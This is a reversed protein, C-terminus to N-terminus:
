CNVSPDFDYAALVAADLDNHLTRLASRGPRRLVDYLQALSTGGATANARHDLLAAAAHTVATVTAPAPQQPWPFPDFVTGSTYALRTELTTCRAEFWARHAHSQLIGFSYDDALTFAVVTDGPHVAADVFTFVTM